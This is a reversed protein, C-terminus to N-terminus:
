RGTAPLPHPAQPHADKGQSFALGYGTLLYFPIAGFPTEFFNGFFASSSLAAWLIFSLAPFPSGTQRFNRWLLAGLGALFSFFVAVGVWGGYGLAYFFVNHPTRIGEPIAYYLSWLPFGYGLGVFASADQRHVEEWIAAWWPIRWGQITGAMSYAEEGILEAAAEPNLPALIRAVVGRVSLEGGRGEPAPVRVDGVYLISFLLFAVLGALALRGVRRMLLAWLLLGVGLALWEGRVQVGLLVVLNLFLLVGQRLSMRELTLLALIAVVSSAPQGFLPVEPAWPLYLGLRNLLFLYSIGYIANLWAFWGLTRRLLLPYRKALTFGLFLYLPYLNFVFNQLILLPDHGRLLGYIIQFAGYSLFALLSWGLFGERGGRLLWAAWIGLVRRAQTLLFAGLVAEGVFLKLAPIGLYAFSRGFLGYGLVLFVWARAWIGM